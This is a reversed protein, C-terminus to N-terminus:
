IMQQKNGTLAPTTPRVIVKRFSAPCIRISGPQRSPVLYAAINLNRAALTVIPSAIRGGLALSSACARPKGFEVSPPACAIKVSLKRRQARLWTELDTVLALVTTM